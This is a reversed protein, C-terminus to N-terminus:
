DGAFYSYPTGFEAVKRGKRFKTLIGRLVIEGDQLSELKLFQGKFKYSIGRVVKTSFTLTNGKLSPNILFFNVFKGRYRDKLRIFGNLSVERGSADVSFLGIWDVDGFTQPPKEVFYYAGSIDPVLRVAASLNSNPTALTAVIIAFSWVFSMQSHRMHQEADLALPFRGVTSNVRRRSNM